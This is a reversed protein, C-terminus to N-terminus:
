IFKNYRPLTLEERLEQIENLLSLGHRCDKKVIRHFDFENDLPGMMRNIFSRIDGHGMGNKRHNGYKKRWALIFWNDNYYGNDLERM